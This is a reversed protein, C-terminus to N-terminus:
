IEKRQSYYRYADKNEKEGIKGPLHLAKTRPRESYKFSFLNDFEIKEILQLSDEFDKETEGPFGVIL